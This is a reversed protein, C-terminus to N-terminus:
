VSFRDRRKPRRIKHRLQGRCFLLLRRRDDQIEVAPIEDIRELGICFELHGLVLDADAPENATLLDATREPIGAVGADPTQDPIGLDICLARSTEDLPDDVLVAM